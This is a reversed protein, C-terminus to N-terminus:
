PGGGPLDSTWAPESPASRPREVLEVLTGNNAKAYREASGRNTTAYRFGNAYRILYAETELEGGAEVQPGPAVDRLAEFMCAVGDYSMWLSSSPASRAHAGMHGSNSWTMVSRVYEVRTQPQQYGVKEIDADPGVTKRWEAEHERQWQVHEDFSAHARQAVGDALARFMAALQAVDSM